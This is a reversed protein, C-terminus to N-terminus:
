YAHSFKDSIQQILRKLFGTQRAKKVQIAETVRPQDDVMDNALPTPHTLPQTVGNSSLLIKNNLSNALGAIIFVQNVQSNTLQPFLENLELLTRPRALCSVLLLQVYNPLNPISSLNPMAQLQFVLHHSPSYGHSLTSMLEMGIAWIFQGIPMLAQGTARCERIAQQYATADLAELQHNGQYVKDTVMFHHTIYDFHTTIITNDYPNVFVRQGALHICTYDSLTQLQQCFDVFARDNLEDFTQHLIAYVQQIVIQQISNQNVKTASVPNSSVEPAPSATTTNSLSANPTPKATQHSNQYVLLWEIKQQLQQRSYPATLWQYPLAVAEDQHFNIIKQKDKVQEVYKATDMALTGYHAHRTIFLTPTHKIYKAFMEDTDKTSCGVGEMDVMLMDADNQGMLISPLIGQDYQGDGITNRDISNVQITSFNIEIFLKIIKANKETFGVLSLSQM